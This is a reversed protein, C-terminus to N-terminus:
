RRRKKRLLAFKKEYSRVIKKIERVLYQAGAAHDENVLRLLRDLVAFYKTRTEEIQKKQFALPTCDLSRLNDLRDCAKVMLTRWDAYALLREVYGDKPVKSVLKVITAVEAGFYRELKEATFIRSDELVDHLLSAKVMAPDICRVEDILILAVRRPHEFSRVPRGSADKEMRVQNKCAYKSIIYALDCDFLDATSYVPKLRAYFSQFNEQRKVM